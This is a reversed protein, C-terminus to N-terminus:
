ALTWHRHLFHHHPPQPPQLSHTHTHTHTHTLSLSLYFSVKVSLPSEQLTVEDPSVGLKRNEKGYSMELEVCPLRHTHTHTHTGPLPRASAPFCTPSLLQLSVRYCASLGLSLQLVKMGSMDWGERRVMMFKILVCLCVLRQLAWVSSCVGFFLMCMCDLRGSPFLCYWQWFHTKLNRTSRKQHSFESSSCSILWLIKM